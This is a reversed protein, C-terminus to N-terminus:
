KSYHVFMGTQRGASGAVTIDLKGASDKIQFGGGPISVVTPEIRATGSPSGHKSIETKYYEVVKDVSDDTQYRLTTTGLLTGSSILSANPYKVWEPVDGDGGNMALYGVVVLGILIIAVAGGAIIGAIACGSLGKKPPPPPPPPPIPYAPPPTPMM